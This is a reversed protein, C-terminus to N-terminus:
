DGRALARLRDQDRITICGKDIELVGNERFHQLVRNVSERSLGVHSGVEGQPVRLGLSVAAGRRTGHEEAFRMLFRAIRPVANLFMVEELIDTLRRLRECLLEVLRLTVAPHTELFPTLERRRFVFLECPEIAIADASRPKNDLLAIEGLVDGPELTNLIAEKGQPLVNSIRVRGSLVVMMSDGPSGKEFITAGGAYRATTGYAILADIGEPELADFIVNKTLVQRIQDLRAQSM